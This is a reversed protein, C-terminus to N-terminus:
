GPLAPNRVPLEEVRRESRDPQVRSVVQRVGGGPHVSRWRADSPLWHHHVANCDSDPCARTSWVAVISRTMTDARWRRALASAVAHSRSRLGLSRFVDLDNGSPLSEFSTPSARRAVRTEPHGSHPGDTMVGLPRRLVHAFRSLGGSGVRAAAYEGSRAAAARGVLHSALLISRDRALVASPRRRALSAARQLAKEGQCARIATRVM